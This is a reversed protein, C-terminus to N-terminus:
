IEIVGKLKNVLDTVTDMAGVNLLGRSVVLVAAVTIIAPHAFGSFASEAPTIGTLTIVLLALMAVVDYRLKAQVFLILSVIIVAIVIVQEIM